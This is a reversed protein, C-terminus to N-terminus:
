SEAPLPLVVRVTTGQRETSEVEVRGGHRQVIEQVIYLGLGFGSVRTGVNAARYFPEFLRAQAELPIGIGVDAVELVADGGRRSVQVRIEDGDPSYKVANSLLNHLVEELRHADGRVLLPRVPREVTITHGGTVPLMLRFENVVEETLVVLDLLRPELTFQGRQLRSVDLLSGILTNLRQAQREITEV